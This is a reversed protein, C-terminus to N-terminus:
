CQHYSVVKNNWDQTKVNKCLVQTIFREAEAYTKFTTTIKSCGFEDCTEHEVQKWYKFGLFSKEKEVHYEEIEIRGHENRYISEVIRHPM